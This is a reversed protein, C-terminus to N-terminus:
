EMPKRFVMVNASRLRPDFRTGQYDAAHEVLEFGAQLHAALYADARHPFLTTEGTFLHRGGQVLSTTFLLSDARIDLYSRHFQLSESPIDLVPFDYRDAGLLPDFNVTQFLWVGGPALLGLVAELFRALEAAPLHPLVNGLCYIGTFGGSDLIGIEAMDLIRFECNPHSVQATEIMGPDLDIGLLTREATALRSCYGGTGCGIDLLRGRAPLREDLFRFTSDRCPFVKEYHGAFDSYFAM